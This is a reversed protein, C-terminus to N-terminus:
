GSFVIFMRLFDERRFYLFCIKSYKMLKWYVRRCFMFDVWKKRRRFCESRDDGFFLIKYFSIGKDFNAIESCGYVVCGDFM